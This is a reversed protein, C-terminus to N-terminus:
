KIMSTAVFVNQEWKEGEMEKNIDEATQKLADDEYELLFTILKKFNTPSKGILYDLFHEAKDINTPRAKIEEKLNGPLLGLSFIKSRFLADHLPLQQVLTPHYKKFLEDMM